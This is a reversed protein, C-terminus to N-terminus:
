QGVNYINKHKTCLVFYTQDDEHNYWAFNEEDDEEESSNYEETMKEWEVEDQEKLMKMRQEKDYLYQKQMVLIDILNEPQRREVRKKIVKVKKPDAQGSEGTKNDYTYAYYIRQKKKAPRLKQAIQPVGENKGAELKWISKPDGEQAKEEEEESSSSEGSGEESSDNDEEDSTSIYKLDWVELDKYEPDELFTKTSLQACTNRMKLKRIYRLTKYPVDYQGNFTDDEAYHKEYNLRMKLNTFYKEEDPNFKVEDPNALHKKKKEHLRKCYLEYQNDIIFHNACDAFPVVSTHPLSWGFCRTVTITFALKYNEKTFQKIDIITPYMSAIEYLADYEAEYEDKYEM